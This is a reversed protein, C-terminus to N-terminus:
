SWVLELPVGEASVMALIHNNKPFPRAKYNTSVAQMCVYRGVYINRLLNYYKHKKIYCVIYIPKVIIFKM